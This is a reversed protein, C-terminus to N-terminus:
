IFCTISDSWDHSATCFFRIWALQSMISQQQCVIIGLMGKLHWATVLAAVCCWMGSLKLRWCCWQSCDYGADYVRQKLSRTVWQQYQICRHILRWGVTQLQQEATSNFHENTSHSIRYNRYQWIKDNLNFTELKEIIHTSRMKYLISVEWNDAATNPRENFM